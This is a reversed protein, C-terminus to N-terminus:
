LQPPCHFLFLPRAGLAQKSDIEWWCGVVLLGVSLTYMKGVWSAGVMFAVGDSGISFLKLFNTAM